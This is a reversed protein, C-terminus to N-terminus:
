ALYLNCLLLSGRRDAPSMTTIAQWSANLEDYNNPEGAISPGIIHAGHDQAYKIAQAFGEPTTLAFDGPLPPDNLWLLYCMPVRGQFIMLTKGIFENSM